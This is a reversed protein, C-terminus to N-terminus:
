KAGDADKFLKDIEGILQNASDQEKLSGSLYGSVARSVADEIQAWLPTRDRPTSRELAQQIVAFYESGKKKALESFISNRTPPNGSSAVLGQNEMLWIVFQESEKPKSSNVPVALLWNGIMSTGTTDRGPPLAIAWGPKGGSKQIGEDITPIAAPWNLEIAARGKTFDLTMESWDYNIAGPSSAQQLKKYLRLAEILKNKDIAQKKPAGTDDVLKGGLSWYIPLFDTVVPAGSKGRIAYGYVKKGLKSESSATISLALNILQDWTNPPTNVGLQELIDRRYFLVQTNGVFPLARIKGNPYPDRCLKLSAPVIDDVLTKPVGTLEILNPALQPFWPDDVMVVDFAPQNSKLVTILQERLSQYPLEVLEIKGKPYGKAVLIKIADGEPGANIAVKLPKESPGQQGCGLILTAVLIPIIARMWWILRSLM